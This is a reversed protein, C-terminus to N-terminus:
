LAPLPLALLSWYALIILAAMLLITFLTELALTKRMHLHLSPPSDTRLVGSILVVLGPLTWLTILLLHPAHRPVALVIIPAYAGLLFLLYLFRSMRLDFYSALTHKGAQADSEADRMNNLHIFATALLGLSLGYVLVVRDFHGTQVIYAALTLLPGFILFAIVEGLTLSSISFATASYFYACFLGVVVFVFLLPGGALATFVGFATGFLLMMLGFILVRVPKILGQQILGGPGLANSTDVGRLYDYYDNVLHAGIQLCLVTLLLALFRQPHFDGRSTKATISQTWALVSGLLVPMLSLPLYSPRMGNWWIRVWEAFGRHYEAPQVILPAPLRVAQTPTISHVEVEPQLESITQMSGLPITPVEEAQVSDATVIQASTVAKIRPHSPTDDVADSKHM